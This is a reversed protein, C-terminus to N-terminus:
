LVFCAGEEPREALPLTCRIFEDLDLSRLDDPDDFQGVSVTWQDGGYGVELVEGLFGPDLPFGPDSVPVLRAAVEFFRGPLEMVLAPRNQLRQRADAISFARFWHRPPYDREFAKASTKPKPVEVGVRRLLALHRYWTRHSGVIRRSEIYGHRQINLWTNLAALAGATGGAVQFLADAVPNNDPSILTDATM